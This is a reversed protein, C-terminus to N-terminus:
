QVWFYWKKKGGRLDTILLYFVNPFLVNLVLCSFCFFIAIFSFQQKTTVIMMKILNSKKLLICKRRSFLSQAPCLINQLIWYSFVAVIVNQSVRSWILLSLLLLIFTMYYSLFITCIYQYYMDPVSVQLVVVLMCERGKELRWTLKPSPVIIM